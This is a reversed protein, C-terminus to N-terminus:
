LGAPGPNHDLDDDPMFYGTPHPFDKNMQCGDNGAAPMTPERGLM